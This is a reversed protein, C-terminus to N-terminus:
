FPNQHRLRGRATRNNTLGDKLLSQARQSSFKKIVRARRTDMAQESPDAIRKNSLSSKAVGLSRNNYSAYRESRKKYIDLQDLPKMPIQEQRTYDYFDKFEGIAKEHDYFIKCHDKYQMHLRVGHLTSFQKNCWLCTAGAGVKFGLYDMLGELDILYKEEPIFFGHNLNMHDVNGKIDSSKKDCFLCTDPKIMRALLEEIEDDGYNEDLFEDNDIKEWEDDDDLTQSDTSLEPDSEGLDVFSSSDNAQDKHNAQIENFGDLDIPELTCIRRKINYLHWETKFHCRQLESTEFKIRCCICTFRNQKSQNPSILVASLQKEVQYM